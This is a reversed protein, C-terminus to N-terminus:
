ETTNEEESDEFSVVKEKSEIKNVIDSITDVLSQKEEMARKRKKAIKKAKRRKIIEKREQEMAEFRAELKKRERYERLCAKVLKQVSKIHSLEEAVLEVYPFDYLDGYLVKAIAIFVGKGYDFKDDGAVSMKVTKQTGEDEYYNFVAGNDTSERAYLRDTYFVTVTMTFPLHAKEIVPAKTLVRFNTLSAERYTVVSVEREKKMEDKEKEKCNGYSELDKMWQKIAPDDYITLPKDLLAKKWKDKVGDDDLKWRVITPPYTTHTYWLPYDYNSTAIPYTCDSASITLNSIDKIEVKAGTTTDYFDENRVTVDWASM